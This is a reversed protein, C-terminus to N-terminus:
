HVMISFDQPGSPSISTPVVDVGVSLEVDTGDDGLVTVDLGVRLEPNACGSENM